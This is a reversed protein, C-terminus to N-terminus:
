NVFPFAEMDSQAKMLIDSVRFLTSAAELLTVSRCRTYAVIDVRCLIYTVEAVEGISM